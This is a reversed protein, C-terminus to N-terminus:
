NIMLGWLYMYQFKLYNFIIVEQPNLKSGDEIMDEVKKRLAMKNILNNLLLYNM